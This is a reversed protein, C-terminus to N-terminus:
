SVDYSGIIGFLYGTVWGYGEWIRYPLTIPLNGGAQLSSVHDGLWSVTDSYDM